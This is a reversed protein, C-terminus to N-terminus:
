TARPATAASRRAVGDPYRRGHRAAAAERGAYPPHLEPGVAGTRREDRGAATRAARARDDTPRARAVAALRSGEAHGPRHDRIAAGGDRHCTTCRADKVFDSGAVALPSWGESASHGPTDRLGMVTLGTVGLGIILFLATVLPRDRLRRSGSRSSSRCCSCSCGGRPGAGGADGGARAARPLVEAAPVPEPLVVRAAARLHRRDSRGGRRAARPVDVALAM